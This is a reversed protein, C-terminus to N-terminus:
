NHRDAAVNEATAPFVIRILRGTTTSLYLVYIAFNKRECIEKLLTSWEYDKRELSANFAFIYKRRSAFDAIEFYTTTHIHKYM